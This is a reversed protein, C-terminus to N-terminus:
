REVCVGYIYVGATTAKVKQVAEMAKLCKGESTFEVQYVYHNNGVGSSVMFILLLWKM